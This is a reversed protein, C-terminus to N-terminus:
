SARCEKLMRKIKEITSQRSCRPEIGDEECIRQFEEDFTRVWRSVTPAHWSFVTQRYGRGPAPTLSEAVFWDGVVTLQGQQPRPSFVAQAKEDDMSELFQLLISLRVHTIEPGLHERDLTDDLILSCGGARAHREFARRQERQLHHYYRSRPEDLRDRRAWIGDDPEADPISLFSLRGRQRVRVHGGLEVVRNAYQAMMQIRNEEWDAVEVISQPMAPPPFVLQEFDIEGLRKRLDSLDRRVSVAQIPAIMEGHLTEVDVPMVPINLAMAYGTEQHVWPHLRTNKTILPMFVHAHTILGKIADNFPIGPRINEDWLLTLGLEKLAKVTKRALRRDEHCYSVFVRFSAM